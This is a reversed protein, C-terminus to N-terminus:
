NLKGAISLVATKYVEGREKYNSFMDFSSCMPSLMVIEGPNASQVALKVAEDMSGADLIKTSSSFAGRIKDKAEGILVMARVKDKVLASIVRYDGGKDRGGAILLVKKDVSELAVRTADVNTAKSDNIFEIGNFSGLREFRHRPASFGRVAEKIVKDNVGLIRAALISSAINDMNHIGKLQTDEVSLFRKKSKGSRLSVGDMGSVADSLGRGFFLVKSKIDQILEEKALDSSLIAWDESTQNEFMRFKSRKYGAYDVHRDYHDETVNLLIGIFPRFTAIKELQFSSVELVVVSDKKISDIEACLPNGINGCVVTHRGSFSLIKGILETTTTKGNTGTIAVIPAPSFMYGLELESIVRVNTALIGNKYLPGLDVGPSAVVIDPAGCFDRTHGGLESKVSYRRSIEEARATLTDNKSSDTIRVECGKKALLLAAAYGSVGLGIVLANKGKFRDM